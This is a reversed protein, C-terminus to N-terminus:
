FKEVHTKRTSLFNSRRGTVELGLSVSAIGPTWFWESHQRQGLKSPALLALLLLFSRIPWAWLYCVTVEAWLRHIPVYACPWMWNCTFRSCITWRCAWSSVSVEYTTALIILVSKQFTKILWQKTIYFWM